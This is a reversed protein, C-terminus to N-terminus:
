VKSLELQAIFGQCKRIEASLYADVQQISVYCTDRNSDTLGMNWQSCLTRAEKRSYTSMHADFSRLAFKNGSRPGQVTLTMGTNSECVIVVPCAHLNVANYADLDAQFEAIQTTFLAISNVIFDNNMTHETTRKNQGPLLM